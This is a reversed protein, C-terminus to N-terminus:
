QDSESRTDLNQLVTLLDLSTNVWLSIVPTLLPSQERNQELYRPLRAQLLRLTERIEFSLRESITSFDQSPCM